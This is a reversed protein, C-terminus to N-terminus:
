KSKVLYENMLYEAIGIEQLSKAIDGDKHKELKEKFEKYEDSTYTIRILIKNRRFM